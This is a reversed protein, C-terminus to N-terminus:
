NYDNYIQYRKTLGYSFCVIKEYSVGDSLPHPRHQSQQNKKEGKQALYLRHSDGYAFFLRGASM